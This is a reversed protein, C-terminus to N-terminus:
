PTRRATQILVTQKPISAFTGGQNVTPLNGIADITALGEVIRGFVTYGAREGAAHDLARNDKLNFYFQDLASDPDETRAMAITGRENSLGNDAENPIASRLNQKEDDETFHGGQVVFGKVVRHFITGDFHRDAAYRLFSEVTRPAKARDLEVVIDGMSTAIRVRPRPDDDDPKKAVAPAPAETSADTKAAPSTASADGSGASRADGRDTVTSGSTGGGGSGPEVGIARYLGYGFVGIAVVVVVLGVKSNM